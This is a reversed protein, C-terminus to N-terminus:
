KMRTILIMNVDIGNQHNRLRYHPDFVMDTDLTRSTEM